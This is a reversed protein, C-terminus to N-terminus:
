GRLSIGIRSAADELLTSGRRLLRGQAGRYELDMRLLESQGWCMLAYLAPVLPGVRMRFVLRKETMPYFWVWQRCPDQEVDRTHSDLSFVRKYVRTWAEEDFSTDKGTALTNCLCVAEPLGFGITWTEYEYAADDEAQGRAQFRFGGNWIDVWLSADDVEYRASTVLAPSTVWLPPGDRM